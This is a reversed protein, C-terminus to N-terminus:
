KSFEVTWTIRRTLFAVSNLCSHVTYFNSFTQWSVIWSIIQKYRISLMNSNPPTISLTDSPRHVGGEGVGAGLESSTYYFSYVFYSNCIGFHYHYLGICIWIWYWNKGDFQKGICTRLLSSRGDFGQTRLERKHVVTCRWCALSPQFMHFNRPLFRVAASTAM